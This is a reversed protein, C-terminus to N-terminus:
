GALGVVLVLMAFGNLFMFMLLALGAIIAREAGKVEAADLLSLVLPGAAMWGVFANVSGLTRLVFDASSAWDADIFYVVLRGAVLLFSPGFALLLM